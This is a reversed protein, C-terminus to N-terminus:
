ATEVQGGQTSSWVYGFGSWTAVVRGVNASQCHRCVRAETDDTVEEMEIRLEKATKRIVGGFSVMRRAGMHIILERFTGLPMNLVDKSKVTYKFTELVAGTIAAAEATEAESETLTTPQIKIAKQAKDIADTDKDELWRNILWEGSDTIDEALMVIVHYHPHFTNREANYTVELSRAWGPFLRKATRRSMIRNWAAAMRNLTLTLDCPRCNRVTLTVFEFAANPHTKQLENMVHSMNAYRQLALRWTCVSCFRDRCLNARRIEYKNCDLCYDYQLEQACQKMRESRLKYGALAIKEAIQPLIRKKEEWKKLNPMSLMEGTNEAIAINVVEGPQIIIKM